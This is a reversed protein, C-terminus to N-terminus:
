SGNHIRKTGIRMHQAGRQLPNKVKKNAGAHKMLIHGLDEEKGMIDSAVIVFLCNKSKKGKDDQAPMDCTYGKVVKVCWDAGERVTESFFGNRKAFKELNEASASNDVLVETIGESIKSLAEEAMMVPKPCQIGRADIRM